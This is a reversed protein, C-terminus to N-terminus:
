YISKLSLDINTASHTLAGLSVYDVGTEAIEVINKEDINGSAETPFRGQILDLAARIQTPNMNDLLLRSIWPFELCQSIEELNRVEIITPIELKNEILYTKTQQLTKQISGNFDIHNDKIMLMDYLGMRHNKGGGIRVAWKEPFRFNPTTKRTDLLTCATHSILTSLHHTLSAIGSMRQMCNLVLRESSLLDNQPGEVIFAIQNRYIREGDKVKPVFSINSNVQKFIIEAMEIGAIIGEQKVMLHAKAYKSPDLCSLSTHDGQGIDELLALKIFRNIEKKYQRYFSKTQLSM